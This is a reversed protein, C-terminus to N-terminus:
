QHEREAASEASEALAVFPPDLEAVLSGRPRIPFRAFVPPPIGLKWDANALATARGGAIARLM